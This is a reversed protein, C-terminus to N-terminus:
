SEWPARVPGDSSGPLPWLVAYKDEPWSVEEPAGVAANVAEAFRANRRVLGKPWGYVMSAASVFVADKGEGGLYLIVAWTTGAPFGAGETVSAAVPEFSRTRWYGVNRVRKGRLELGAFPLRALMYSTVALIVSGIIRNVLVDTDAGIVFGWGLLWAGLLLTGIYFNWVNRIRMVSETKTSM